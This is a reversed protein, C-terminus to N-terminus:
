ICISLIEDSTILIDNQNTEITQETKETQEIQETQEITQETQEITQEITQETQETETNTELTLLEYLYVLLVSIDSKKIQVFHILVNELTINIDINFNDLLWKLLM